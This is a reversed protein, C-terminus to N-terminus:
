SVATQSRDARLVTDSAIRGDEMKILRDAWGFYKDDHTIVIVCKLRGKLYPLLVEYFFQKFSPDQDAAWEDLVYIPRDELYASVLALRKRQGNSLATTTSYKRQKIQVKDALGLTALYERAAATLANQATPAIVRNFLHFDTFVAAFLSRYAERSDDTVPAGDLLIGGQTPAYLGTLVKALTSKGSGNGGVVFILEGPSLRLDIPGFEFENRPRQEGRYRIKVNRLEISRWAKLSSQKNAATQKRDLSRTEKDHSMPLGFDALRECAIAGEGLDPMTGFLYNLPGTVYLVALVCATLVAPEFLGFFSAGFILLGVFLYYLFEDVSGAGTYWLHQAFIHNAERKSSFDIAARRFWRRRDSNLQLEKIGFLLSHTHEKLVTIEDRAKRAYSMGKGFFFRYLFLGTLVPIVMLFFATWSLYTLYAVGFALTISNTLISPLLLLTHMLRPIDHTLLTLVDAAGRKEIEELPAALIEKCLAMRLSTIIERAAYAPLLVAVYRFGISAMGLIAFTLLLHQRNVADHIVANITDIAAMTAFASIIGSVATCVTLWPHSEWMLRLTRYRYSPATGRNLAQANQM